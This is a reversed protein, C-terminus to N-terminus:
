APPRGHLSREARGHQRHRRHHRWRQVRAGRNPLDTRHRGANVVVGAIAPVHLLNTRTVELLRVEGTTPSLVRVTDISSAGPSGVLQFFTGTVREREEPHVFEFVSTGIAQEGSVGYTRLGSPNIYLIVGQADLVLIIDAVHQILTSLWGHGRAEAKQLLSVVHNMDALQTALKLTTRGTRFGPQDDCRSLTPAKRAPASGPNAFWPGTSCRSSRPSSPTSTQKATM